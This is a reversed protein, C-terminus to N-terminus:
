RKKRFVLYFLVAFVILSFDFRKEQHKAPISNSENVDYYHPTAYQGWENMGPLQSM